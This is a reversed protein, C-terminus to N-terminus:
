SEGHVGLCYSAKISHFRPEFYATKYRVRVAEKGSELGGEIHHSPCLLLSPLLLIDLAKWFSQHGTGFHTSPQHRASSTWGQEMVLDSYDLM